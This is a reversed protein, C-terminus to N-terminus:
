SIKKLTISANVGSSLNVGVALVTSLAMDIVSNASLNTIISGTYTSASGLSLARSIVTSPINAGNNRIAMTITTGLTISLNIYFNIEYIGGQEVIISNDTNYSVNNGPMLVTLPVQTQSSVGLSLTRATNSYRGGYVNLSAAGSSGTPGTPGQPIVFNLSYSSNM